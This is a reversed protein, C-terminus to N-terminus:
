IFIFIDLDSPELVAFEEMLEEVDPISTDYVRLWDQTCILCEVLKPSLSSRFRDLVRGGTSFAAESAVTSVPIALIDRAVQSLVPYRASNTKWWSLIEFKTNGHIKERAEEM